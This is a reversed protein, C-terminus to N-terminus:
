KRTEVILEWTDKEDSFNKELYAIILATLWVNTEINKEGCENKFVAFKKGIISEVINDEKFYGAATQLSTLAVIKDINSQPISATVMEVTSKSSSRFLRSVSGFLSKQKSKTPASAGPPAAGTPAVRQASMIMKEQGGLSYYNSCSSYAMCSDVGYGYAMQNRVQRTMM